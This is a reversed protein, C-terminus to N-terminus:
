AGKKELQFFIDEELTVQFFKLEAKLQKFVKRCERNQEALSITGTVGFTLVTAPIIIEKTRNVDPRKIRRSLFRM